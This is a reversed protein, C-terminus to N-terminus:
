EKKGLRVWMPAFKKTREAIRKKDELRTEKGGRYGFNVWTEEDEEVDRFISAGGGAMGRM